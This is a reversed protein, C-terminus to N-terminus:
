QKPFENEKTGKWANITVETFGFVMLLCGVPISSYVLWMPILAAPSKQGFQFLSGAVRLGLVCLFVSLFACACNIAILGARKSGEPLMNFFVDLSIHGGERALLGAGLFVIWVFVIRAVEEGWTLSFNFFYRFFTNVFLLGTTAILFLGITYRSLHVLFRNIQGLM